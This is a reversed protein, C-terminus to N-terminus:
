RVTKLSELIRVPEGSGMEPAGNVHVSYIIKNYVQPKIRNRKEAVEFGDLFEVDPIKQLADLSLIYLTKDGDAYSERRM